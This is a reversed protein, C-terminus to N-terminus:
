YQTPAKSIDLYYSEGEVFYGLAKPNTITIQLHGAPTAAAFQNDETNNSASYVAHLSIEEGYPEKVIKSVNFKARM